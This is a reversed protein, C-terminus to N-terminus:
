KYMKVTAALRAMVACSEIAGPSIMGLSLHLLCHNPLDLARSRLSMVYGRLNKVRSSGQPEHFVVRCGLVLAHSRDSEQEGGYIGACGKVHVHSWVWM